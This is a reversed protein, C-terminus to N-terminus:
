AREILYYASTTVFDRAVPVRAVLPSQVRPTLGYRFRYMPNVLYLLRAAIRHGTDGVIGEFREISIGTDKIELLAEVTEPREGCRRLVHAYAPRPLLHVYPLRMLVRHDCIQQHGGFPMQWPPFAFFVRGRAAMFEHLRAFLRRQDHIHEITDKMVILDFPGNLAAADVDYVDRAEFRWATAGEQESEFRRRAYDISPAHLDVGTVDAGREAFARLVGGAGCGIELVRSGPAVPAHRDIFPLISARANARQQDFYLDTDLHFDRPM